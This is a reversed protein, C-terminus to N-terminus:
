ILVRMFPLQKKRETISIDTSEVSDSKPVIVNCIDQAEICSSEGNSHSTEPKSEKVLSHLTEEHKNFHATDSQCTGEKDLM